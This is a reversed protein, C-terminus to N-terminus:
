TNHVWYTWKWYDMRDVISVQDLIERAERLEAILSVFEEYLCSPDERVVRQNTPEIGQSHFTRPYFPSSFMDIVLFNTSVVFDKNVFVPLVRLNCQSLRSEELIFGQRAIADDSTSYRYLFGARVVRRNPKM